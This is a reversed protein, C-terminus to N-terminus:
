EKPKVALVVYTPLGLAGFYDLVERAPADNPRDAHYKVVVFDELRKAVAAQNFVLKEMSLCDKCWAAQFDLFVPKGQAQASQLATLLEQSSDVTAVGAPASAFSTGARASQFQSYALHGYFLAFVVILVGFGQKVREMWPGPKPLFTLSAGAFPWPLAMGLGLVFPLLLGLRVGHAHLNAALLLVSIVVPAVCAGALLAAIAGLSFAVLGRSHFRRVTNGANGEFRSFDLNIKGFMALSLVLFVVTIALNFWPSANLTGFKAGTLVVFLGLLGYTLAMGAGYTAGRWFGESRSKASKGAGIIALNIPILPLVCPTFNLGIGGVLILLVTLAMGVRKFQALPDEAVGGSMARDLYKIFDAPNLYGTQRALVRFKGAEAPWGGGAAAVAVPPVVGNTSRVEAAGGEGTVAFIRKEPFFCEANTCGQFKVVLQWPTKLAPQLEATFASEYVKKEHGSVRDLETLPAPMHAVSLETGDETEFHLRDAYLVCGAPVAFQVEVGGDKATVAIGFPSRPRDARVAFGTILLLVLLITARWAM